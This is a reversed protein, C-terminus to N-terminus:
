VENKPLVKELTRGILNAMCLFGLDDPHTGDVIISDGADLEKVVQLGDVFYVNQDGAQRANEVTQLIVTRREDDEPWRWFPKSVCLIPLEPQLLNRECAFGTECDWDPIFTEVYEQRGERSRYLDFGASGTLPMHPVKTIADMQAQLGIYIFNQDLKQINSM